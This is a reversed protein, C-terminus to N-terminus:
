RSDRQEVRVKLGMIFVLFGYKEHINESDVLTLKYRLLMTPILKSMELWSLNMLTLQEEDAEIWREPRFENADEGWVDVLRNIIYGSSGVINGGPVFKDDIMMGEPPVVRALPSGIAPYLRVGEWLVAQLYQCDEAEEFTVPDSLQGDAKKEELEKLLRDLKDPNRLLLLMTGRISTSTTDSGAFINTSMMYKLNRDNMEEPSHKQVQVLERVMDRESRDRAKWSEVEDHSMDYFHGLRDNIALRNGIIPELANHLRLVWPVHQVWGISTISDKLRALEGNDTGTQVFGFIRSFSVAGVVNPPGTTGFAFAQVWYGLDTVQGEYEKLKDMLIEIVEDVAPQLRRISGMTYIKSVLKRQKGHVNVDAETSLDFTRHGKIVTYAPAKIFKTSQAACHFNFVHMENPAIRVAAGYKAHLAMLERHWLGTAARYAYWSRSLKFMLPGPFNALPAFQCQYIIYGIILLITGAACGYSALISPTDSSSLTIWEHLM